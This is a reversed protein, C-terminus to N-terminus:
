DTHWAGGGGVYVVTDKQETNSCCVQTSDDRVCMKRGLPYGVNHGAVPGPGDRVASIECLPKDIRGHTLQFSTSKSDACLRLFAKSSKPDLCVSMLGSSATCQTFTPLLAALTYNKLAAMAPTIKCLTVQQQEAILRNWVDPHRPLESLLRM